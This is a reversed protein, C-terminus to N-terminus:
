SLLEALMNERYPKMNKILWDETPTRIAENEKLFKQPAIKDLRPFFLESPISLLLLDALIAIRRSPVSGTSFNKLLAILYDLSHIKYDNRAELALERAKFRVNFDESQQCEVFYEMYIQFFDMQGQELLMSLGLLRHESVSSSTIRAREYLVSTAFSLQRKAFDVKSLLQFAVHSEEGSAFLKEFLFEIDNERLHEPEIKGILSQATDSIDLSEPSLCELLFNIYGTLRRPTYDSLSMISFVRALHRIKPINHESRWKNFGFVEIFDFPVVEIMGEKIARLVYEATIQDNEEVVKFLEEIGVRQM